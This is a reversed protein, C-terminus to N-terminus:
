RRWGGTCHKGAVFFVYRCLVQHWFFSKIKQLGTGDRGGPARNYDKTEELRMGQQDVGEDSSHAVRDGEVVKSEAKATRGKAAVQM